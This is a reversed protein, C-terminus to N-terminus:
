ARHDLIQQVEKLGERHLEYVHPISYHTATSITNENYHAEFPMCKIYRLHLVEAAQTNELQNITQEIDYITEQDELVTQLLHEELTALRILKDEQANRHSPSHPMGSLNIGPYEAAARAEEIAEQIRHTKATLKRHQELYTKATM